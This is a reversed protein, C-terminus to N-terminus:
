QPRPLEASLQRRYVLFYYLAPGVGLLLYLALFWVIKRLWSSQDFNFWFYLMATSLTATGVTAPLLITRLLVVTLPSTSLSSPYSALMAAHTGMKTGILALSLVACVLYVRRASTSVIWSKTIPLYLM